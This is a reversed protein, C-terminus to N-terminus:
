VASGAARRAPWVDLVQWAEALLREAAAQREELGADRGPLTVLSTPESEKLWRRVALLADLDKQMVAVPLEGPSTWSPAPSAWLARLRSRIEEAVCSGPLSVTERLTGDWVLNLRLLTTGDDATEPWLAAFRLSAAEVLSQYSRRVSLLHERAERARQAEEFRRQRSLSFVLDDARDIPDDSGAPPRGALWGLIGLVLADHKAVTEPDGTCPALCDECEFRLCPHTAASRPCRRIPYCRHVLDLAQILRTRGRFPGLVMPTRSSPAAAEGPALCRPQRATMTLNLGYGSRGVKLYTYNEPRSGMVNCSPRHELILQQERVVAELPTYTEDWDIREVQHVAQRIKRTHGGGRVFYSRVRERLRDAKGVYLVTGHKDIFRYTGPSRPVDRTLRLKDM